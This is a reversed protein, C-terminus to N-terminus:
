PGRGQILKSTGQEGSCWGLGRGQLLKSTGQEGSFWSPGTGQLLKRYMHKHRIGWQVM